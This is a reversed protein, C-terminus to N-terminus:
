KLKNLALTMRSKKRDATGKKLTGKKAARDYESIATSLAKTAAAKDGKALAARFAKEARRVKTMVARNRLRKRENARVRREASKTNPM